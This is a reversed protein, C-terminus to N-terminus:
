LFFQQKMMFSSGSDSNWKRTLLRVTPCIAYCSTTTTLFRKNPFTATHKYVISLFEQLRLLRLLIANPLCKLSLAVQHAFILYIDQFLKRHHHHTMTNSPVIFSTFPRRSALRQEPHPFCVPFLCFGQQRPDQMKTLPVTFPYTHLVTPLSLYQSFFYLTSISTTTQFLTTLFCRQTSRASSLTSCLQQTCSEATAPTYQTLLKHETLTSQTGSATRLIDSTNM